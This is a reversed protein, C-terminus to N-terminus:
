VRAYVDAVRIVVYKEDDLTIDTGAYNSYYVVNGIELVKPEIEGNDMFRGPGMAVIEGANQSKKASPALFLGTNTEEQIEQPKILLRDYIPKCATVSYQANEFKCLVDDQTVITHKLGDYKLDTGGYSGYMITDGKVVTMPIHVGNGLFKGPGAEVVEGFTPKTQAEDPLIIGGTTTDEAEGVKILLNQGAPKLPGNITQGDLTHTATATSACSRVTVRSANVNVNRPSFAARRSETLSTTQQVVGRRLSLPNTVTVFNITKM